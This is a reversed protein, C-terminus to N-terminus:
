TFAMVSICVKPMITVASGYKATVWGAVGDGGFVNEAGGREAFHFVNVGTEFEQAAADIRGGVSFDFVGDKADIAFRREFKEFRAVGNSDRTDGQGVFVGSGSEGFSLLLEAVGFLDVAALAVFFGHFGRGAFHDAGGFFSTM